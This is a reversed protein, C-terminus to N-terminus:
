PESGGRGPRLGQTIRARTEALWAMLRMFRGSRYAAVLDELERVRGKARALELSWDATPYPTLRPRAKDPALHPNRCFALLPAAVRPWAYQAAVAAFATRRRTRAQPDDLLDLIAEVVGDVDGCRVVHGLGHAAVVEALVDGESVVMPLGAWIYDLIRTRFAFRTEVSDLHLSIGIDAELLYDARRAYPVWDGWFVFRDTLGLELSLDQARQLMSMAPVRESWPHQGGPFVCRVNPRLAVVRSLAWILTLPDLWDWVGGGWILLRDDPAIEPRSGKYLPGTRTPPEPPLGFPVVDILSRFGPDQAFIAPALRGTAALFGLWFDRQRESACLFFDGAAAIRGLLALDAQQQAEQWELPRWANLPLAETPGPIYLDLVLPVGVEALFPYEYLLYGYAMIVDAQAALARITEAAGPQYAVTRVGNAPPVEGPAALTVDCAQALARALEWYRIGPGAMRASVLDHSIILVRQREFGTNM